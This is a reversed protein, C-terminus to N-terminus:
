LARSGFYPSTTGQFLIQFGLTGGQTINKTHVAAISRMRVVSFRLLRLTITISQHQIHLALSSDVEWRRKCQGIALSNHYKIKLKNPICHTIGRPTISRSSQQLTPLPLDFILSSHLEIGWQTKQHMHHSLFELDNSPFSLCKSYSLHNIRRIKISQDFADPKVDKWETKSKM